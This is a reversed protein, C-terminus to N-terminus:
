ELKVCKRQIDSTNLNDTASGNQHRLGVELVGVDVSVQTSCADVGSCVGCSDVGGSEDSCCRGNAAVPAHCCHGDRDLMVGTGDCVGCGDLTGSACCRGDSGVVAGADCCLGTVTDIAPCCQGTVDPSGTPCTVNIHPATATATATVAISACDSGGWGLECECAQSTLNCVSHSGVAQECYTDTETIGSGSCACSLGTDCSMSSAPPSGLTANASACRSSPVTVGRLDVCSVDRTAMGM